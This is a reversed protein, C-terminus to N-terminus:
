EGVVGCKEQHPLFLQLQRLGHLRGKVVYAKHKLALWSLDYENRKAAFYGRQLLM